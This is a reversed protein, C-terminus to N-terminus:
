GLILTANRLQADVYCLTYLVYICVYVCACVYISVSICLYMCMCLLMLGFPEHQETQPQLKNTGLLGSGFGNEDGGM